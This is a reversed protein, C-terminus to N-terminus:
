DDDDKDWAHWSSGGGRRRDEDSRVGGSNAGGGKGRKKKKKAEEAWDTEGGPRAARRDPGPRAGEFAM